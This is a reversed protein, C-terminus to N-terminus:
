CLRVRFPDLYVSAKSPSPQVTLGHRSGQAWREPGLVEVQLQVYSGVPCRVAGKVVAKCAHLDVWPAAAAAEPLIQM